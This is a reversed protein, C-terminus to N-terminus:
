RYGRRQAERNSTVSRALSDKDYSAIADGTVSKVFPLINGSGDVDMGFTVHMRGAGGGGMDQGPKTVSVTENPSARFAVLQSDIGGSGGVGFSGGNAFGLLKGIGGFLSGLGGGGSAGATGGGFIAKFANDMFMDALSGLLDALVDKVKTSGDILGQFSSSITHGIEEGIDGLLSMKTKTKDFNDQAAATARMYTDWDIAGAQLLKNLRQMEMQMAELPTRTAEFVQQGENKMRELEAAAAKAEKSVKGASGANADFSNTAQDVAAATTAAATGIGSMSSAIDGIYDRNMDAKFTVEASGFAAREEKTLASKVDSMDLGPVIVTDGMQWLPKELEAALSNFAQKGIASFFTPLNSWAERVANYAGVFIGIIANAASKTIAVVDVGISQKIEDRFHYAATIAAAIGIALAGLPNAAVAVSVARIAGVVGVSIATVVSWISAVIAPSFMLALSGAAVAADSAITPLYGILAILGRATEVLADSVVVLAPLLAAALTTAVGAGAYSIRSLNDNFAEAAVGTEASLTLGLADAEARAERLASSGGNLLPILDAGAKGFLKTALATKQVGNPMAAFKDALNEIVVSSSKLSGDSNKVAIGLGKFADAAGGGGKKAFEAMNQSLKRVGTQLGEFSVGALDAVYKLQSLEGIPIGIKTAVKSIDDADDIVSKVALGIGAIAGAAAAAVGIFATKMMSGLGSMSSKADQLGKDFVASDIGLNVRLAGIVANGAM